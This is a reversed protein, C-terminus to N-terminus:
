PTMESLAIGFPHILLLEAPLVRNEVGDFRAPSSELVANFLSGSPAADPTTRYLEDLDVAVVGDVGHMVELVEAATVPQAFCRADFGFAAKLAAELAAKVTAWVYADDILVKATVFFVFSKYTALVVPRLPDRSDEISQLLRGYLPEVVAEGAADAVTVHVKEGVPTNVADARAKGIGPFARAYDEYDQLSVIRGLTLVTLPANARADALKEPDEGGSAPLPNTVSRIGMPRTKLLTLSEAGVDGAVGTGSRYTATVNEQGTPLRAGSRGDGFMVSANADNDVRVTYVRAGADAGYLSDVGTWAVGAVRVTLAAESGGVASLHTLPPKKLTFRQHRAAGDGSGLVEDAVTEGHSARVVNANIRVSDRVYDHTPGNVFALNTYGASHNISDLVLLESRETGDTGVEVGTLIVRQGPELGLVMTDLRLDTTGADLQATLPLPAVPVAESRVHATSRRFHFSSPKDTGNDNLDSGGATALELGSVKSSLGYGALSAESVATVRYARFQDGPREFVAWGDGALGSVARELFVDADDDSAADYYDNTLSDDWISYGLSDWDNPWAKGTGRIESPLSTYRPANHGFFALTERFAIVQQDADHFSAARLDDVYALMADADWDNMSLFAQLESEVWTKQMVHADVNARTLPVPDQNPDLQGETGPTLPDSPADSGAGLDVRTRDADPDPTVRMVRRPKPTDGILLLVVQGARIGTATGRLFVHDMAATLALPATRRPRLANRVVHATRDEATEFTQPLEGKRAPISLVQTGAHIEAAAPAGDSDDVTFALYTEASVGPDLEYGIARALELVSRRETATRLYSENAIREQYFTVVDDVVAWADILAIAPDDPARTGLRGLPREAVILAAPDPAGPHARAIHTLIRERRDPGAFRVDCDACTLIEWAHIRATMRDLFDAYTGIRYRIQPLGAANVHGPVHVGGECCGCPSLKGEIPRPGTSM